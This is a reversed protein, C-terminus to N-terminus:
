VLAALGRDRETDATANQIFTGLSVEVVILSNSVAFGVGAYM